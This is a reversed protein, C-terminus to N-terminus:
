LALWPRLTLSTPEQRILQLSATAALYFDNWDPNVKEILELKWKRKWKKMQKEREIALEVNDFREYYVLRHVSYKSTFGDVLNNKHEHVRRVIDNTVGIYLTGNRESALIYVYYDKM